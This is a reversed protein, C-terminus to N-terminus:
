EGPLVEECCYYIRYNRNFYCTDKGLQCAPSVKHPNCRELGDKGYKPKMHVPCTLEELSIFCCIGNTENVGNLSCFSSIPCEAERGISCRRPEGKGTNVLATLNKLCWPQRLSVSIKESCCIGNRNAADALQCFAPPVCPNTVNCLIPDGNSDIKVSTDPCLLSFQDDDDFQCCISGICNHSKPCEDTQSCRILRDNFDLAAKEKNCVVPMCYDFCQEYSLFNNFNGGVGRFLFAKCKLESLTFYYRIVPFNVSQITEVQLGEDYEVLPEETNPADMFVGGFPSKISLM